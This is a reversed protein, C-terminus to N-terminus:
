KLKCNSKFECNVTNSLWRVEEMVVKSATQVKTILTPPYFLGHEPVGECAQYVEAGEKRADEVYSAITTKQNADVLAGMDIAKDLSHGLRLHKMREKLKGILKEAISEQM